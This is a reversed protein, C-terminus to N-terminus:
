KQLKRKTLGEEFTSLRKSEMWEMVDQQLYLDMDEPVPSKVWASGSLICIKDATDPDLFPKVVNWLFKAVSPVPFLICCALREPHLDNLLRAAHKIFPVLKPAPINAWGKGPRTDIVVCIKEMSDRSVCRDIYLALATAYVEANAVSLDIRAPLHQLVRKGNITRLSDRHYENKNPMFLICPPPRSLSSSCASAAMRCALTWDSDEDDSTHRRSTSRLIEDGMSDFPRRWELYKKLMVSAARVDGSRAKLFRAREASTATPFSHESLYWERNGATEVSGSDKPEDSHDAHILDPVHSAIVKREYVLEDGEAVLQRVAAKDLDWLENLFNNLVFLFFLTNGLFETYMRRMRSPCLPILYLILHCPLSLITMLSTPADHPPPLSSLDVVENEVKEPKRSQDSM